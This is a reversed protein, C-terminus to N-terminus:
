ANMCQYDLLCDSGQYTNDRDASFEEGFEKLSHGYVVQTGAGLARVKKWILYRM